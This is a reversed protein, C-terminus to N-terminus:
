EEEGGLCTLSGNKLSVLVKGSAAILGDFVPPSALKIEHTITGDDAAVLALRGGRQGALAALGEDPNTFSRGTEDKKAVDAVGAVVLKEGSLVMARVILPHEQSWVFTKGRRAPRAKGAGRRAAPPNAVKNYEKVSRFLHYNNGRHGTWGSAHRVRGYGFMRNDDFSLIRGAPAQGSTGSRMSAWRGYGAGTNTGYLWYARIFWEEGILGTASFLHPRTAQVEKGARDFGMHKLYAVEGDASLIDSTTGASDFTGRKEAATQKGTLPDLHSIVSCALMKGTRPELRYLYIGGDLYSSRGATFVLEGGHLLVSGHVPWSSEIQGHYVIRHEQPAALFQWVLQGDRQDLCTVKGDASGFVVLGEHLTPASDIRGGATHTWIKRGDDASLAWLQHSDVSAVFAKGDACVPQTLEGGIETTWQVRLADPVTAPTAGSRASDHRYMPWAEANSAGDAAVKGYAPGKVLRGARTVPKGKASSPLSSALANFGTLRAKRHCGCADPPAYLMGNAPLIGYQCTGRVWSNNGVWGKALDILEIGDRGTLIFRASAKNRYCRDHVMGVPQPRVTFQTRVRGTALDYGQRFRPGLWVTQDIAFVDVPSNYGEGCPASWLRRGDAMAYAILENPGNRPVSPVNFCTVGWAPDTTAPPVKPGTPRDACLVVNETIVVTSSSWGYRKSPTPRKAQWHRRGTRADVCAIGTINQYFVRDKFATVSLPLIFDPGRANKRWLEKGTKVDLAVLFRTGTPQPEGRGSLGQGSRKVESTGILLYLVGHHCVIEETRETGEYTHLVKGTAGDIRTVPADFGLTVFVDGGVAVLRRPLHVPGSRFHRLHDNWRAIPKDWLKVGSFADRAVLEWKAPYWLSILPATDVIYFLRGGASVMASMSALEEHTRGWRPGAAWRLSRPPGIAPDGAVANNSADHLYHTWENMKAPWPKVTKTWRGSAKLYAVGGPALVRMVEASAVNGLDESVLLNVLNAAYPLAKGDLVDVSVKGYLGKGRIHARARRVNDGSTDLGHVLYGDNAGLTATLKGNGCGLHVVLGGRVGSASLIETGKMQVAGFVPSSAGLTWLMMAAVPLSLYSKRM